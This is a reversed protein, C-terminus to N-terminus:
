INNYTIKFIKSGGNQAPTPAPTPALKNTEPVVIDKLPGNCNQANTVDHWPADYLMTLFYFGKHEGNEDHLQPEWCSHKGIKKLPNCNIFGDKQGTTFWGNEKMYVPIDTLKGNENYPKVIEIGKEDLGYTVLYGVFLPGRCILRGDLSGDSESKIDSEAFDSKKSYTDDRKYIFDQFLNISFEQTAGLLNEKQQNWKAIMNFLFPIPLYVNLEHRFLTCVQEVTLNIVIQNVNNDLIESRFYNYSSDNSINFLKKLEEDSTLNESYIPIEIGLNYKNVPRNYYYLLDISKKAPQDFTNKISKLLPVIHESFSPGFLANRISIVTGAVPYIPALIIANSIIFVNEVFNLSMFLSDLGYATLSAGLDTVGALSQTVNVSKTFVHKAYHKALSAGYATHIGIAPVLDIVAEGLLLAQFTNFEFDTLNKALKIWEIDTWASFFGANDSVKKLLEDVSTPVDIEDSSPITNLSNNSKDLSMYINISFLNMFKYKVIHYKIYKAEVM